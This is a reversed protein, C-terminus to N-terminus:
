VPGGSGFNKDGDSFSDFNNVLNGKTFSDLTVTPQSQVGSVVYLGGGSNFATGGGGGSGGGGYAGNGQIVDLTLHITGSGAYIGGGATDGGTSGGALHTGATNYIVGGAGGQATNSEIQSNSITVTGGEIDVAGGRALGGSGPEPAVPDHTIGGYGGQAVNLDIFCNKITVASAVYLGGGAGIGGGGAGGGSRGTGAFAGGNPGFFGGEASNREITDNTLTAREELLLGGGFGGTYSGGSGGARAGPFGLGGAGPRDEEATNSLVLANSLTVTAGSTTSAYLGGGAGSGSNGGNGGTTAGGTVGGGNGGAGGIALNSEITPSATLTLTTVAAYIGGGIANGGNGGAGGFVFTGIGGTGGRGGGAECGQVSLFGSDTVTGGSTALGGGNANGGNGGNGGARGRGGAAGYGGLALDNLFTFGTLTAKATTTTANVYMGGGSATGGGGGAASPLAGGGSGGFAGCNEILTGATSSLSTAAATNAYIAGGAATGGNKGPSGIGGFAHCSEFLNNGQLKLTSGATTYIGGGLAFNGLGAGSFGTGRATNQLLQVGGAVNLTGNNYIAGGEASSGSGMELGDQLTVNKLVLSGHSGPAIDFFRFPSGSDRQIINGNGNITLTSAVTSNIVPLGNPGDTTNNVGTLLYPGSGTLNITNAAAGNTNALGIDTILAAANTANFTAPTVRTELAEVNLRAKMQRRPAAPKAKRTRGLIRLRLENLWM